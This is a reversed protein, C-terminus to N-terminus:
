RLVNHEEATSVLICTHLFLANNQENRYSRIRSKSEDAFAMDVM